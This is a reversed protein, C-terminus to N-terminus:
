QSEWYRRTADWNTPGLYDAIALALAEAVPTPVYGSKLLWDSMAIPSSRFGGNEMEYSAIGIMDGDHIVGGYQNETDGRWPTTSSSTRSNVTTYSRQDAVTHWEVLAWWGESPPPTTPRDLRPPHVSVHLGPARYQYTPPLTGDNQPPPTVVIRRQVGLSTTHTIFREGPELDDGNMVDTFADM